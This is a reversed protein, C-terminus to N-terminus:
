SYAMEITREKHDYKETLQIYTIYTDIDSDTHKEYYIYNSSTLKKHSIM